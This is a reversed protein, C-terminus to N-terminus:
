SVPKVDAIISGNLHLHALTQWSGDELVEEDFSVLAVRDLRNTHPKPVPGVLHM